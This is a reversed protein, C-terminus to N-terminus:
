YQSGYTAVITGGFAELNLYANKSATIFTPALGIFTWTTPFSLSSTNTAANALFLAVQSYQGGVPVNSATFNYTTPGTGIVVYEKTDLFSCTIWNTSSTVITTYPSPNGGAANLAVSATQSWSATIPYISGTILQTGGNIANIAWSSTQSNSSTIPYISGTIMGNQAWSSSVAWSSTGVLPGTFSPAILNGTMTDGSKLVFDSSVTPVKIGAATQGEVTFHIDPTGAGNGIKFKVVLRDTTNTSVSSTLLLISDFQDTTTTTILTPSTNGILELEGVSSSIYLEPFITNTGAGGVRYVHYHVDISGQSINQIGIAPSIFSVVYQSASAALVVIESSSSSIPINLKLMNKYGPIDSSSSRFYYDIGFGVFNDVYLKTAVQNPNIPDSTIINSSSINTNYLTNIIASSATLSTTEVDIALVYSESAYSETVFSSTIQSIVLSTMLSGTGDYLHNGDTTVLYQFSATPYLGRLDM